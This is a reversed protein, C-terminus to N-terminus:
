NRRSTDISEEPKRAAAKEPAERPKVDADFDRRYSISAGQRSRRGVANGTSIDINNRSFLIARIRRDKSLIFEIAIDPLWQLAGLQQSSVTTSGVRFDLDGGVSVIINNNFLGKSLKFNVQSRDINNTATVNGSFLSSSNYVSTSVDFQLSRDKFIQYLINSVAKDLQKSVMESITNYGLTTFNATLNRGEGYPAFSGFVLLYTVQKLMENEDRELKQLFQAFTPDNLIQQGSAPFDFSFDITPQELYGTIEAIVYVKDNYSRASGGFNQNAILDSLRVNDATYRAQIRLRANYPDGNWEIFSGAGELLEFPKQIFSQFNFDYSGKQIEYRGNITLSESTGAHIRLRGNGNAKIIDGTVADLIVDIQALPNATLDLDVIVNTGGRTDLDRMEVGYQKFVIFDADASERSTSTPIYIHSSDVPEGSIYMHLNEEPGYLNLTAKGIATGYFQDNDNAKTDILLLRPTSLDFDYSIDEFGRQYMRGEATGTNGFKDKITFRGFDIMEETFVFRASDVTYRVQTFNVLLSANRLNVTGLLNPRNPKGSLRINGSALGDVDTFVSSLFKNLFTIKTNKLAVDIALPQVSSDSLNYTGSALFNYLENPSEVNYSILGTRSNYLGSLNVTGVSDNDLRFQQATINAEIRFNGFFDKLVVSGSALGELRPDTVIFPAFDSIYLDKLKVVLHSQDFDEDYTTAAEIVQNGQSFRINEASVYNKRIVLEGEKELTWKKDNIVFDSPHFHVRVGDSYTYVDADLNLENLTNTAKTNITVLSVDHSSAINITTHPFNTSDSLSINGIDGNITLQDLDGKGVLAINNFHYQKYSFSPINAHLELLTDPTNINGYVRSNSFGTLNKDLLQTYGDINKTVLEFNFQQDRPTRRPEKIYAPYYKHLFVQFNDPLDMINYHGEIRAEFENSQLSLMRNGEAFRSHLTLSDFNLRISDRLLNANYVKISGLFQDINRGSFNLDFLGSIELLKNSFNLNQFNSNALDGLVNFQPERTRFDMKVTTFLNLNPDDIKVSGEFQRRQFTGEVNINKYQYDNYVLHEIKGTVSTRLTPLDLGVGKINGNFGVNGMNRIALFKGVNFQKTLIKGEYSPLGNAPIQMAVDASFAGLNTSFNGATKFNRLTGRFNGRFQVEGLSAISPVDVTTISPFYTAADRYNTRINGSALTFITNDVDPLGLVTIDGTLVTGSGIRIYTNRAQLDEVTGRANGSIVISKNWNKLQPAFYAIDDSHLDTNSFRAEMSVDTIFHKFDFNFDVFKMAFYNKLRSRSTKLDLNNFEMLEPTLRFDAVLDKVEFGSREKTALQIKARITDRIFSFNDFTGNIKEFRVHSGDFHAYPPNDSTNSIFSGDKLKIQRVLVTIGGQNFYPMTDNPLRRKKIRPPRLGDFDTRSFYPRDLNLQSINIVKKDLDFREADLQLAGVRVEMKNGVWVDHQVFRVNKFDVKKLDLTLNSKKTSPVSPKAPTFYDVIFQYNWTSDKRYLNIYADDLGVYKLVLEDKLFFWDTIRLRLQDAYLLTDKRQDRVLTGELNMRNFLGFSVNRINVETNLDKSLRTTAKKVIWNQVPETQILLWVLLVLALVILVLRVM